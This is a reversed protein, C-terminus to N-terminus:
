NGGSSSSAIVAVMVMQIDDLAKKVISALEDKKVEKLRKKMEKEEYKSFYRKLEGSHYLLASLTMTEDSLEGEELFEARIKEVVADACDKKVQELRKLGFLGKKTVTEICGAERLSEILGDYIFIVKKTTFNYTLDQLWRQLTMPKKDGIKQWLERMYGIGEPVKGTLIIRKKEDLELNGDMIMQCFVAGVACVIHPYDNRLLKLNKRGAMACVAYEQVLNLEKM